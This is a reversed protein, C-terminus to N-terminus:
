LKSNRLVALSLSWSILYNLYVPFHFQSQKFKTIWKRRETEQNTEPVELWFWAEYVTQLLYRRQWEVIENRFLISM